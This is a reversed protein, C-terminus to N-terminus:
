PALIAVVLPHFSFVQPYISSFHVEGQSDPQHISWLHRIGFRGAADLIRPTDDIFLTRLPDFPEKASLAQWFLQDEKPRGFDHTSILRDLWPAMGTLEMKLALSERHANTVLIRRKGQDQLFRLFQWAGPRVAILHQVERKLATIDLGLERQWYDLCYWDLTGQVAHFCAFLREAAAARDVRWHAACATPLYQQWFFNDFHLDLLTGDMDLLVVDIQRWDIILTKTSKMSNM